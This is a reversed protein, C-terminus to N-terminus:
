HSLDSPDTNAGCLVVAIREGERPSYRGSVLAALAAAAGHEVLVRRDEWLAARAAIIQEDTVLVSTALPDTALRHATESVRRAGLSDAAVSHVDVDTPGGAELAANLARCNEPEVAVVRVGHPFMAAATGAFLGGGGVAVMVTDIDPAQERIEAACTGAGAAILPNDYAHSLLAGTAEAHKISAELAHAYATGELRVDAGLARLKAVKVTPATEPVFVTVKIGAARGAWAAAIAANGGSAIAIGERPMTDNELHHLALNLAGRAKFSGGHQMFECALWVEAANPVAGPVVGPDARTVAVRRVRSGIRDAAAKVDTETIVPTSM